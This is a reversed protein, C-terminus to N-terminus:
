STPPDFAPVQVPVRRGDQHMSAIVADAVTGAILGDRASAL